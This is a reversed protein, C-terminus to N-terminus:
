HRRRLLPRRAPRDGSREPCGDLRRAPRHRRRAAALAAVAGPRARPLRRRLSGIRARPVAPQPLPARRTSRSPSGSHTTAARWTGRGREDTREGSRLLRRRDARHRSGPRGGRTCRAAPLGHRAVQQVPRLSTRAPLRAPDAGSRPARRDSALRARRRGRRDPRRVARGPRDAAVPLGAVVVLRRGPVVAPGRAACPARCRRRPLRSGGDARAPAAAARRAVRPLDPVPSSRLRAARRAVTRARRGHRPEHRPRRGLRLARALRRVDAAAGSRAAHGRRRGGRGARLDAAAPGLRPRDLAPHRLRPRGLGLRAACGLAARGRPDRRRRGPLLRTGARARTHVRRESSPDDRGAPRPALPERLLGCDRRTMSRWGIAASLLLQAHLEACEPPPGYDDRQERQSEGAGRGGGVFVRSTDVGVLTAAEDLHMQVALGVRDRQLELGVLVADVEVVMVETVVGVAAHGYGDEAAGLLEVRELGGAVLEAGRDFARGGPAVADGVPLRVHLGLLGCLGGSEGLARATTAGLPSM